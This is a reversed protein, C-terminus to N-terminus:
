KIAEKDEPNVKVTLTVTKAMKYGGFLYNENDVGAVLFFEPAGNSASGDILFLSSFFTYKSFYM